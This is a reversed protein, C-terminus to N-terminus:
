QVPYGVLGMDNVAGPFAIPQSVGQFLPLCSRPLRTTFRTPPVREPETRECFRAYPDTCPEEHRGYGNISTSGIRNSSM